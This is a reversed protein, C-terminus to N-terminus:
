DFSSRTKRKKSPSDEEMAQEVAETDEGGNGDEQVITWGAEILPDFSDAYLIFRDIQDDSNRFQLDALHLMSGVEGDEATQQRTQRRKHGLSKNRCRLLVSGCVSDRIQPKKTIEPANTVFAGQEFAIYKVGDAPGEPAVLDPHPKDEKWGTTFRRGLCSVTQTGVAFSDFLFLDGVNHDASKLFKKPAAEIEMFKNEFVVGDHLQALAIDSEGVRERVFGVTTGPNSGQLVEFTSTATADSNGFQEPYKEYHKQWCHFSCTLRREGEKEVLIGATVASYLSGHQDTSGIMTGPYFKKDLSVYDTEDCIQNEYMKPNPKVERARKRESNPLPGNNFRLILFCGDIDCPLSQLRNFHEEKSVLPLEVVLMTWLICIAQCEPWLNALHLIIDKSPVQLPVIQDLIADSVEIHDGQGLDGVLPNFNFEKADRWIAIAGAVSFPRNDEDPPGGQCGIILFPFSELFETANYKEKLLEHLAARQDDTVDRGTLFGESDWFNFDEFELAATAASALPSTSVQEGQGFTFSLSPKHTQTSRERPTKIPSFSPRTRRQRLPTLVYPVEARVKSAKLPSLQTPTTSM